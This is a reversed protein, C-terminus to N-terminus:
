EKVSRELDKLDKKPISIDPLNHMIPVFTGSLIADKLERINNYKSLNRILQIIVLYVIKELKDVDAESIIKKEANHIYANRVGYVYKIFVILQENLKDFKPVLNPVVLELQKYKDNRKWTAITDLITCFLVIKEYINNISFTQSYIHCARKLKKPFGKGNEDYITRYLSEFDSKNWKNTSNLLKENIIPNFRNAHFCVFCNDPADTNLEKRYFSFQGMTVFDCEVDFRWNKPNFFNNHYLDSCIKFIDTAFSCKDFAIKQAYDKNGYQQVVAFIQNDPFIKKPNNLMFFDDVLCARKTFLVDAVSFSTISDDMFANFVPFAFKYLAM